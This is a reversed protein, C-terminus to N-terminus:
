TLLIRKCLFAKSLFIFNVILPAYFFFVVIIRELSKNPDHMAIKQLLYFPISVVAFFFIGTTIWFSPREFLEFGSNIKLLEFYYVFCPPILFIFDLVDIFDSMYGLHSSIFKFRTVLFILEIFTYLLALIILVKKIFRSNLVNYFFLYYAYLESLDTLTNTVITFNQRFLPNVTPISSFFLYALLFLFDLLIYISFYQALKDYKANKVALWLAFFESFLVIIEVYYFRGLNELLLNLKV